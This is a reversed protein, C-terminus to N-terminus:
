LPFTLGSILTLFFQSTHKIAKANVMGDYIFIRRKRYYGGLREAYFLNNRFFGFM